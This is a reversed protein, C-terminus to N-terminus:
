GKMIDAVGVLEGVRSGGGVWPHNHHIPSQEHNMIFLTVCPHFTVCHCIIGIWTYFQFIYANEM